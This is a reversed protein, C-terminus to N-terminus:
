TKDMSVGGDVVFARGTTFSSADSAM